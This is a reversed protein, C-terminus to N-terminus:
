AALHNYKSAIKSLYSQFFLYIWIFKQM